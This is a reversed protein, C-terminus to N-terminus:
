AEVDKQAEGSSSDELIVEGARTRRQAFYAAQVEDARRTQWGDFGVKLEDFAKVFLKRILGDAPAYNDVRDIFFLSLVKVGQVRLKAQRKLHQEVTYRIQAEFVVDKDAGWEAGVPMERVQNAFKVSQTGPNIEEAVYGAYEARGTLTELSQGPRVTLVQERVTGAAKAEVAGIARRDVFLLYDAFGTHLPFERV